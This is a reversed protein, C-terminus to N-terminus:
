RPSYDSRPTQKTLAAAARGISTRFLSADFEDRMDREWLHAWAPTMARFVINDFPVTDGVVTLETDKDYQYTYINNLDVTGPQRDLFLKGDTPRIKAYFSLGTDDQEPDDSLMQTYSGSYEWIFQTNTKDILPWQLRVLDTALAYVRTASLTITSEAQQSPLSINGALYLEDIGENVVQVAVDLSRQRASDTLTTFEDNAGSITGTRKLVANVAQLLTKAV